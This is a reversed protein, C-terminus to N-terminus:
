LSMLHLSQSAANRYLKAAKEISYPDNSNTAFLTNLASPPRSIFMDASLSFDNPNAGLIAEKDSPLGLARILEAGSAGGGNSVLSTLQNINQQQQQQQTSCGDQSLQLSRMLEALATDNLDSQSTNYGSTDSDAPSVSRSRGDSGPSLRDGIIGM